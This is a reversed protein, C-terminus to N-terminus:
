ARHGHTPRGARRTATIKRNKRPPALHDGAEIFSLIAAEVLPWDNVVQLFGFRLLRFGIATLAADRDRDRAIQAPNDHWQAGDLEVILRDGIVLDVRALGAISVQSRCRIGLRALRIRTLTELGSESARDLIGTQALVKEARALGILRLNLASDLACVLDEFSGCQRLCELAEILSAVPQAGDARLSRGDLRWHATITQERAGPMGKLRSSTRQVEIHLAHDDLVWVGRLALASRCALRGGCRVAALLRPDVDRLVFWGPRARVVTGRRLAASIGADTFGDDILRARPAAGGRRALAHEVSVV